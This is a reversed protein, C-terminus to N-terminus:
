IGGVPEMQVTTKYAIFGRAQYNALAHPGDLTCTHLWVRSAGDAFARAVGISLFYKGLGRGHFTPFLGFYIIETGTEGEEKSEESAADLEIYGAPNGRIYLVLVTVEPRLLQAALREDSWRLRETWTFDRGVEDYLFRYFAVSPQHAELVLLDPDDLTVARLQDPSTLHVYTTTVEVLTDTTESM